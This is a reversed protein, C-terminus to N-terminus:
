IKSEHRIGEIPFCLLCYFIPNHLIRTVLDFRGGHATADQGPLFASKCIFCIKGPERCQWLYRIQRDSCLARVNTKEM